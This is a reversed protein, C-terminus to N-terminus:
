SILDNKIFKQNVRVQGAVLCGSLLLFVALEYLGFGM